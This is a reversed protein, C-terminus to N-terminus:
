KNRYIKEYIYKKIFETNNSWVIKNKTTELEKKKEHYLDNGENYHMGCLEFYTEIFPVYFDSFRNSNKYRKQTEFEINSKELFQGISFEGDSKYYKGKIYYCNGYKTKTKHINNKEMYNSLIQFYDSKTLYQICKNAAYKRLEKINLSNLFDNIDINKEKSEIIKSYLQIMFNSTKTNKSIQELKIKIWDKGYKKEYNSFSTSQSQTLWTINKTNKISKQWKDQRTEWIKTGQQKGLKEICKNLSFTSQFSSRKLLAEEQTYGKKIWYGIQSPTRNAYIEPSKELKEAFKKSLKKQTESVKKICEIDAYGRNKWYGITNKTRAETFMFKRIHNKFFYKYSFISKNIICLNIENELDKNLGIFPDAPKLYDNLLLIFDKITFIKLIEKDKKYRHGKQIEIM